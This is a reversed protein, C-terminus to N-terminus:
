IVHSLATGASVALCAELPLLSWSQTSMLTRDVLDLDSLADAAAACRAAAAAMQDGGCAEVEARSVAPRVKAYNEQAYLTIIKLDFGVSARVQVMLPMLRYDTFFMEARDNYSANTHKSNSFFWDGVTDFISSQMNSTDKGGTKSAVGVDDWSIKQSRLSLAQLLNLTHRMDGQSVEVMKDLATEPEIKLGEIRAIAALRARAQIAQVCNNLRTLSLLSTKLQKLASHM